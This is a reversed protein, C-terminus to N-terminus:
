GRRGVGGAPARELRAAHPGTAFRLESPLTVTRAPRGPEAIRGFLMRAATEGIAYTPQVAVPMDIAFPMWGLDDFSAVMLDDPVRLGADYIARLAGRTLLQSGTFLAPPREPLSLLERTLRYGENEFPVGTRILAEDPEIGADDLARRYGLRRERGTTIGRSSLVAGIRRQGREILHAVLARSAEVNNTLVTDIEAGTVRRDVAVVPIGARLLTDCSVVSELAPTLVVGAVKEDRLLDVYLREKAPDEDSNCLFVAYGHQSAVDEVARVVTTWFPNQIDSIVLGLVSSQRSRLSRAVRDPRYGLADVAALVKCRVEDRVYPKNTLVRSVTASSVGARRAVDKIRVPESRNEMNRSREPAGHGIRVTSPNRTPDPQRSAVITITQLLPTLPDAPRRGGWGQLGNGSFGPVERQGAVSVRGVAFLLEVRTTVVEDSTGAHRVIQVLPVDVVWRGGRM